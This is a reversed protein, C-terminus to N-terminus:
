FIRQQKKKGQKCVQPFAFREWGMGTGAGGGPWGGGGGGMGPQTMMRPDHYPGGRSMAAPHSPNRPAAMAGPQHMWMNGGANSANGGHNHDATYSAASSDTPQAASTGTQAGAGASAAKGMSELERLQAALIAARAAVQAWSESTM